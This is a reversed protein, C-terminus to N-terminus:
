TLPPPLLFQGHLSLFLRCGNGRRVHLPLGPDIAEPETHLLSAVENRLSDLLMTGDVRVDSTPTRAIGTRVASESISRMTASAAATEPVLIGSSKQPQWMLLVAPAGTGLWPCTPDKLLFKVFARQNHVRAIKGSTTQLLAENAWFALTVDVPSSVKICKQPRLFVIADLAIANHQLVAKHVTSALETIATLSLSPDRVEAVVILGESAAGTVLAQFAAICGPRISPIMSTTQGSVSDFVTTSMMLCIWGLRNSVHEIDQPYYNRGRIIILDKIRGSIFLEGRYVFGLDGTRLFTADSSTSSTTMDIGHGLRAEFTATSLAIKNWYGLAKSPSRVWVEGVADSSVPCCTQPDVIMINIAANAPAPLRTAELTATKDLANLCTVLGCSVLEKVNAPLPQANTTIADTLSMESKVVIQGCAEYENTSIRLVTAGRDCVYM